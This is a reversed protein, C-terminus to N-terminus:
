DSARGVLLPMAAFVAQGALGAAGEPTGLAALFGTVTGGFLLLSLALEAAILLVFAVVGMLLRGRWDDGIALRRVLWRCAVWAVALMLPLEILVAALPGIRPVLLLTRITGLVFGAAFVVAFYVVGAKVSAAAGSAFM